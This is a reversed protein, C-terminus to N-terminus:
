KKGHKENAALVLSRLSRLVLPITEGSTEAESCYDIGHAGRPALSPSHDYRFQCLACLLILGGVRVRVWALVDKFCSGADCRLVANSRTIWIRALLNYVGLGLM